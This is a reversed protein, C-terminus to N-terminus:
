ILVLFCAFVVLDLVVVVICFLDRFVYCVRICFIFLPSLGCVRFGCVVVVFLCLLCVCVRVVVWARVCIVFSHLVYCAFSGFLLM